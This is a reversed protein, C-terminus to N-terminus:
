GKLLEDVTVEVSHQCLAAAADDVLSVSLLELSKRVETIQTSM